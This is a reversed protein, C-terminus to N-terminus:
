FANLIFDFINKIWNKTGILLMKLAPPPVWRGRFGQTPVWRGGPLGPPLGSEFINRIPVLFQILFM